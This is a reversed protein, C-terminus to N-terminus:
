PGEGFVNKTITEVLSDVAPSAVLGTLHATSAIADLVLFSFTPKDIERDGFVVGKECCGYKGFKRPYGDKQYPGEIFDVVPLEWRECYQTAEERVPFSELWFGETNEVEVAWAEKGDWTMDTHRILVPARLDLFVRTRIKIQAIGPFGPQPLKEQEM